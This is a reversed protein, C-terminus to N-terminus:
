AKRQLVLMEDLPPYGGGALRHLAAGGSVLLKGGADIIHSELGSEVVEQSTDGGLFVLGSGAIRKTLEVGNVYGKEYVGLPGARIRIEKAELRRAWREVTGEGIDVIQGDCARLDKLEVNRKEGNELVTFDCPHEVNQLSAILRADELEKEDFKAEIFDNNAKGLDHGRVRAILQGVLGGTFGDVGSAFIRQLDTVKQLKKGGSILAKNQGNGMIGEVIELEYASRLGVFTTAIHPLVMMSSDARHWAPMADNVCTAISGEFLSQYPCSDLEFKKEFDFYRVNDLLIIEGRKVGAIRRKTEDSFIADHPIFEITAERVLSGLLSAHEKLPLFDDDGKRGQHAMVVLGSREAYLELMHSYVRLRLADSAVHGEVVPLNIDTRVLTPGKLQADLNVLTHNRLHKLYEM